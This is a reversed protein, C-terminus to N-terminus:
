NLYADFFDFMLQLRYKNFLKDEKVIDFHILNLGDFDWKEVVEEVSDLFETRYLVLTGMAALEMGRAISKCKEETSLRYIVELFTNELKPLHKLLVTSEPFLTKGYRDELTFTWRYKAKDDHTKRLM